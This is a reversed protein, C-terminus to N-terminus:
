TQLGFAFATDLNLSEHSKYCKRRTISQEKATEEEITGGGGELKINQSKVKIYTNITAVQIAMM